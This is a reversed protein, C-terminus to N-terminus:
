ASFLQAEGRDLIVPMVLDEEDDLHRMLSRLLRGSADAYADTALRNDPGRTSDSLLANAAEIVASIEGHIMDHDGELAEFGTKLRVEAARFIPFFHVDEVHHHEELNGLFFQLRPAFFSRFREPSLRDERFEETARGLVGGLERFMAHRALWFRATEGLNTHGPWVERPYRDLLVRLDAPWGARVDLRLSAM